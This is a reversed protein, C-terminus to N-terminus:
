PRDKRGRQGNGKFKPRPPLGKLRAIEDAQEVVKAKLEGIEAAKAEVLGGLRSVEAVLSAVVRRLDELPFDDLSETPPSM